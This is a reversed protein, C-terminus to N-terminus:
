GVAYGNALVCWNMVNKHTGPWPNSDEAWGHESVVEADRFKWAHGDAWKGQTFEQPAWDILKM